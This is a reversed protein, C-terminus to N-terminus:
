AKLFSFAKKISVLPEPYIRVNRKTVTLVLVSVEILIFAADKKNNSCPLILATQLSPASDTKAVPQNFLM